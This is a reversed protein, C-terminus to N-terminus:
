FETDEPTTDFVLHGGLHASATLLTAGVFSSAIAVKRGKRGRAFWSVVYALLGGANLAAHAV